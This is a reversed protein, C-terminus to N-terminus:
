VVGMVHTSISFQSSFRDQLQKAVLAEVSPRQMYRTLLEQWLATQMYFSSHKGYPLGNVYNAAMDQLNFPVITNGAVAGVFDIDHWFYLAPELKYLITEIPQYLFDDATLHPEFLEIVPQSQHESLHKHLSKWSVAHGHIDVDLMFDDMIARVVSEGLEDRLLCSRFYASYAYLEATYHLIKILLNLTLGPMKQEALPLMAILGAEKLALVNHGKSRIFGEAVKNFSDGGLNILEVARVEFDVARLVKYHKIHAQVWTPSEALRAIALIRAPDERKLMSDLSRYRLLKMVKKPPHAKLLKRLASKKLAWVDHPIDLGPFAQMITAQVEAASATSSGGLKRYIFDDHKSVLNLLAQYLEAGTTDVPDLGLEKFKEHYKQIIDATLAVDIGLNGTAREFRGTVMSLKPEPVGLLQAIIKSMYCLCLLNLRAAFANNNCFVEVAM